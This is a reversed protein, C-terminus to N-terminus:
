KYYSTNKFDKILRKYTKNLIKKSNSSFNIKNDDIGRSATGTIKQNYVEELTNLDYVVMAFYSQNSEEMEIQRMSNDFGVSGLKNSVEKGRMLILYDQQTAIKLSKLTEKSVPLTLQMPFGMNNARPFYTFRSGFIATFDQIALTEFDYHYAKAADLKYLLWKGSTFDLQGKAYSNEKLMSTMSCASLLLASLLLLLAKKM